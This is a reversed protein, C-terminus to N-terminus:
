SDKQQWDVKKTVIYLGILVLPISLLQGMNVPWAAAFDAQPIKTYELFFRGSFLLILFMGFLSGEPPHAKYKKYITWLVAFVLLCLIAEYLMTPHRPVMGAQGPLNTFIIGWPADTVHGYIESNFFNGTRIFAGGVATPIVVRDALWWFTMGPAKKAQYYMAVIIGVAAGHSALGGKWVALVEDLNRLYYSPDYFIVHGLRAGIVTGVLIWTLISEMEEPKRGADKWMKVGFLYGSVFAGAFMLGYWRPALPGLSFIEPDIGWSLNELLALATIM